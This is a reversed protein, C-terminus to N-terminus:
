FDEFAIYFAVMQLFSLMSTTSTVLLAAFIPGLVSGRPFGNLKYRFTVHSTRCPEKLQSKSSVIQYYSLGM